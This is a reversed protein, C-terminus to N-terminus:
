TLRVRDESRSLVRGVHHFFIGGSAPQAALVRPPLGVRASTIFLTDGRLAVCSPQAADIRIIRDVQGDPLYRVVQGAGWQANWLAGEADIISGDPEAGPTDLTVFVRVNSISAKAADYDCCLIRPEVSDCFYMRTGAKDFCISNPIAAAPLGLDRLGHAATYQYFRGAKRNDAHESKTGFVFGGNRDARGDNVRTMPDDAEVDALKRLPLTTADAHADVDAAYLGDALGLLLRGDEGLGICALPQQMTWTHTHGSAPEYCWLKCALIDVWYLRQRRECWLIGEGLECRSDLLLRAPTATM